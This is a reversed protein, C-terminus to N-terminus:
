PVVLQPPPDPTHNPSPVTKLIIRLPIEEVVHLCLLLQLLDEPPLDIEHLLLCYPVREPAVVDQAVILDDIRGSSRSGAWRHSYGLCRPGGDIEYLIKREFFEHRRAPVHLDYPEGHLSLQLNEPLRRASDAQSEAALM